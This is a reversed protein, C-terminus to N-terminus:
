KDPAVHFPQDDEVGRTVVTNGVVMDCGVSDVRWACDSSASKSESQSIFSIRFAEDVGDLLITSGAAVDDALTSLM